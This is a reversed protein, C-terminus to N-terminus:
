QEVGRGTSKAGIMEGDCDIEVALRERARHLLVRVAVERKELVTAIDCISLDEAYRLWLAARQDASLVREAIHWLVHGNVRDTRGDGAEMVTDITDATIERGSTRMHGIALRNAITFLWTSFAWRPDYRSLAQWARLFAEQTLEAADERNRVRRMLFNFLRGENRRVLECFIPLPDSSVARGLEADSRDTLPRENAIGTQM